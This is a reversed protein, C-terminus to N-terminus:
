KKEQKCYGGSWNKQYDYSKNPDWADKSGTQWRQELNNWGYGNSMMQQDIKQIAPM